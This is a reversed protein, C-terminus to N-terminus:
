AVGTLDRARVFRVPLYTGDPQRVLRNLWMEDLHSRCFLSDAMRGRQCEVVACRNHAAIRESLTM